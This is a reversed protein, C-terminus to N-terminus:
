FAECTPRIVDTYLANYEDTFQMVVFCIRDQQTLKVGKATVPGDGQLLVGLQARAVTFSTSAVKVANVYLDVQSGRVQLKVSQWTGTQLQSGQGSGGLPEFQGGSFASFGYPAGLVNLGAFLEAGNRGGLIFQCRSDPDPLLVQMEVTGQEFELNSRVVAHPKSPQAAQSDADVHRPVLTLQGKDINVTGFVPIWSANM